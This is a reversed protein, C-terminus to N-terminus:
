PKESDRKVNSEAAEVATAAGAGGVARELQTRAASVRQELEVRKVHAGQLDQEALLLATVDVQGNRYIAEVQSRRQEQLPILENRVRGLSALLAAYSAHARRVVEVAGRRAETLQHRAEVVLARARERRPGGFDFLPIPASVSPGADTWGDSHTATGGAGIGDFLTLGAAEAEAERAKVEFERAMVDPRRALAVRVWADDSEDSAQPATWPDLTWTADASPEGVLRTLTLRSDRALIQREAIELSLAVQETELTTVDVRAAEGAALRDKSLDVLRGLVRAREELLPVLEDAAQVAVYADRVAAVADLAREVSDAAAIRLRDDTAASRAPRTILALLNESLGVEIENPLLPDTSVRYAIDLVPNDLLRAQEADALAVRTRAIAAQLLPDTEIARRLAGALTLREPQPAGVDTPAGDVVFRVAPSWGVAEDVQRAADVDPPDAVCGASAALFLICSSRIGSM